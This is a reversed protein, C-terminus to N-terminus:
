AARARGVAQHHQVGPVGVAQNRAHTLVIRGGDSRRQLDDAHAFSDLAGGAHVHHDGFRAHAEQRVGGDVDLWVFVGQGLDRDQRGVGHLVQADFRANGHEAKGVEAVSGVRSRALDGVSGCLDFPEARIQHDVALHM